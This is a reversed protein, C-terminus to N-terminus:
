VTLRPAAVYEVGWEPPIVEGTMADTCYVNFIESASLPKAYFEVLRWGMVESTQDACNTRIVAGGGVMAALTLAMMAELADDPDLDSTEGDNHFPVSVSLTAGNASVAVVLHHCGDGVANLFGMLLAASREVEYPTRDHSTIAM